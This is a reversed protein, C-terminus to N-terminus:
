GGVGVAIVIAVARETVRKSESRGGGRLVRPLRRKMIQGLASLTSVIDAKKAREGIGEETTEQVTQVTLTCRRLLGNCFSEHKAVFVVGVFAFARGKRGLKGQVKNLM